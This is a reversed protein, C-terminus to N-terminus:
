RQSPERWQRALAVEHQFAALSAQRREETWGCLTKMRESVWEAAGLGQDLARFFVQTRRVLVDAVECALEEHVAWDVQARIEPRGPVLPRALDPSQEILRAVDVARSGYTQILLAASEISLRDGSSAVLAAAEPLPGVAGPLPAKDTDCRVLQPRVNKPMLQRIATDVVEASMMRYTTLKGGAITIVGDAGTIIQHERSIASEAVDEDSDSVPMVLPRLGAWTSFVDEPGLECDPYYANAAELLYAVDDADAAVDAPDDQYDTDTTGIYAQDGWPILFLVREDRPHFCVVAHELPLRETSVTIHVGKTPRLKARSATGSLAAIKEAWPGAANIVAAAHIERQEGTHRDTVTAGTVEGSDARVFGTVKAGTVVVAGHAAADLASELTLRADDTACDYYLPAGKLGEQRLGPAVDAVKKPSLVRHTKPSSLLSLGDYLIMGARLTLLNHRSDTYIPFLFGLPRVLHPAINQLIRRERVAEFVLGFEYLELYRLGGHVLKSSRSSTGWALDRMEVLAVKLGRRAADRAIGAGNIGGGVVLLDFSGSLQRWMEARSPM